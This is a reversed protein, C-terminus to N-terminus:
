PFNYGLGDWFTCYDARMDVHAFCGNAHMYMQVDATGNHQPWEAIM